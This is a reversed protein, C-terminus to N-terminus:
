IYSLIPRESDAAKNYGAPVVVEKLTYSTDDLGVVLAEANEGTPAIHTVTGDPDYHYVGDIM